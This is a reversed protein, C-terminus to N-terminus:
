IGIQTQRGMQRDIEKQRDIDTYIDTQNNIMRLHKNTNLLILFNNYKLIGDVQKRKIVDTNQKLLGDLITSVSTLDDDEVALKGGM